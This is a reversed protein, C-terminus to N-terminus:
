LAIGNAAAEWCEGGGDVSSSVLRSDFYTQLIFKGIKKQKRM